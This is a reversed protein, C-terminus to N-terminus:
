WIKRGFVANMDFLQFERPLDYTTDYCVKLIYEKLDDWDEFFLKPDCIGFLWNPIGASDECHLLVPKHELCAYTIESFSGCSFVQPDIHAIVFSSLDLMRLDIQVIPQMTSRVEDFRYQLKLEHIQNLTEATEQAHSCPKDCPNFCGIDNQNLFKQIDERWLVADKRNKVKDIPGILYSSHGALRNM